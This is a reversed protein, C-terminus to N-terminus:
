IKKNYNYHYKYNYHYDYLVIAWFVTQGAFLAITIPLWGLISNVTLVFLWCFAVMFCTARPM